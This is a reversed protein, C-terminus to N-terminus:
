RFSTSTKATAAPGDCAWPGWVGSQEPMPRLSERLRTGCSHLDDPRDSWNSVVSVWDDYYNDEIYQEVVAAVNPEAVRWEVPMGAEQAAEFQRTIQDQIKIAPEINKFEGDPGVMWHYGNGKAEL